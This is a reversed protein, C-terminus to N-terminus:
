LLGRVTMLAQGLLNRGPWTIAAGLFSTNEAHKVAAEVDLGVGWIADVPSAEVLIRDGTAMLEIAWEPNQGFKALLVHQMCGLRVCEWEKDVYGKVQRGLAKAEFASKAAAIKSAMEADHFFLAKAYMFAAESCCFPLQAAGYCFQGPTWHFNSYITGSYFFVHTPTTVTPTSM